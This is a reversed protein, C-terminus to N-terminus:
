FYVIITIIIIITIACFFIFSSLVKSAYFKDLEDVSSIDRTLFEDSFQRLDPHIREVRGLRLMAVDDHKCLVDNMM